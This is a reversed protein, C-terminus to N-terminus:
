EAFASRLGDNCGLFAFLMALVRFTGSAVLWITGEDVIALSMRSFLLAIFTGGMWLDLQSRRAYGTRLYCAALVAWIIALGVHAGAPTTDDLLRPDALSEGLDPLLLLLQTIVVLGTLSWGLLVHPNPSRRRLRPVLAVIFCTIALARAASGASSVIPLDRAADLVGDNMGIKVVGYLLLGTGVWAASRDRVLRWRMFCVATAVGAVTAAMWNLVQPLEEGGASIERFDLSALTAFAAAATLTAGASFVFPMAMGGGGDPDHM